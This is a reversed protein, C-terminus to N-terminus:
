SDLIMHCAVHPSSIEGRSVGVGVFLRLLEECGLVIDTVNLWRSMSRRLVRTPGMM